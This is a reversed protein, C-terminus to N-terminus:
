KSPYGREEWASKVIDKAAGVLLRFDSGVLIADYGAALGQRIAEPTFALTAVPVAARKCADYIKQLAAAHEPAPWLPQLRFEKFCCPNRIIRAAASRGKWSSRTAFVAHSAHPQHSTM